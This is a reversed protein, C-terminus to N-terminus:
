VFKYITTSQYKENKEIIPKKFTKENVANPFYQTELCVGCRSGYEKGEKGYDKTTNSTYLQVGPLDTFVQMTRGTTDERLEAIKELKGDNNLVYNHDYGKAIKLQANDTDIDKGLKKEKTFDFPTGVVSEIKGTPVFKDKALPTYKDALLLLSHENINGNGQGALNFYSHNTLNLVTKKDSKGKYIIELANDDTLKYTVYLDLNGPFGQDGDESYLYFTVANEDEDIITDWIRKNYGDNGSHLNNVGDNLELKYETNDITFKGQYIRNANRGITSGFCSDNVYYKKIDDYGLVVDDFNGDKDAVILSMLIAGYNTVKAIMGNKNKIEYIFIDSEEKEDKIGKVTLISM